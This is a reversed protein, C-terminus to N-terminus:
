FGCFDIFISNFLGKQSRNHFPDAESIQLRGPAHNTSKVCYGGVAFFTVLQQVTKSTKILVVLRYNHYKILYVIDMIQVVYQTVTEM